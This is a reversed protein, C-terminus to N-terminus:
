APLVNESTNHAETIYRTGGSAIVDEYPAMSLRVKTTDDLLKDRRWRAADAQQARTNIYRTNIYRTVIQQTVDLIRGVETHSLDPFHDCLWSVSEQVTLGHRGRVDKFAQLAEGAQKITGTAADAALAEVANSWREKIWAQGDPSVVDFPRQHRAPNGPIHKGYGRAVVWEALRHRSHPRCGPVYLFDMKRLITRVTRQGVHHLAGLETITIWDGKSRTIMDGTSRDLVQEIYEM